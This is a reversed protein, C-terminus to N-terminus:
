QIGVFAHTKWIRTIQSLFASDAGKKKREEKKRKEDREGQTYIYRSTYVCIHVNIYTYIYTNTTFNLLFFRVAYLQWTSHFAVAIAQNCKQVKTPPTTRLDNGALLLFAARRCSTVALHWFLPAPCLM